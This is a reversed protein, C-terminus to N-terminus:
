PNKNIKREVLQNNGQVRYFHKTVGVFIKKHCSFTISVNHHVAHRLSIASIMYFRDTLHM